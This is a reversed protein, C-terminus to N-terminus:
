QNSLAFENKCHMNYNQGCEEPVPILHKMPSLAFSFTPFSGSYYDDVDSTISPL